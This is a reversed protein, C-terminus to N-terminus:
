GNSMCTISAAILSLSSMGGETHWPCNWATVFALTHEHTGLTKALLPMAMAQVAIKQMMFTTASLSETHDFGCGM